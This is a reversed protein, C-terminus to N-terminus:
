ESVIWMIRSHSCHQSRWVSNTDVMRIRAVEDDWGQMQEESVPAVSDIAARVMFISQPSFSYSGDADQLANMACCLSFAPLAEYIPKGNRMNYDIKWFAARANVYGAFMEAREELERPLREHPVDHHGMFCHGAEHACTQM